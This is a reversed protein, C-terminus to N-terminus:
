FRIRVPPTSGVIPGGDATAVQVRVLATHLRLAPLDPWRLGVHVQGDYDVESITSSGLSNRWDGWAVVPAAMPQHLWPEFGGPTRPIWRHPRDLLLEVVALSGPPQAVAAHLTAARDTQVMAASASPAAPEELWVQPYDPREGSWAVGPAGASIAGDFSRVLPADDVLGEIRFGHVQLTLTVEREVRPLDAQQVVFHDGGMIRELRVKRANWDIAFLYCGGKATHRGVLAFMECGKTGRVRASMRYDRMDKAAEGITNIHIPAERRSTTLTDEFAGAGHVKAPRRAAPKADAVGLVVTAREPVEFALSAPKGDANAAFHVAFAGADLQEVEGPALQVDSAGAIRASMRAGEMQWASQASLDAAAGLSAALTAAIAAWTPTRNM